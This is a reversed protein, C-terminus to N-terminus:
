FSRRLTIMWERPRGVVGTDVGYSVVNENMSTYYFKDFVNKVAASLSWKGDPTDYTLRLDTLFRGGVKNYPNNIANGFFSSLYSVDVRPTLEGMDGLDIMYSASGSSQWRSNFPAVMGPTVATLPNVQTYAFDLYGVSGTLILGDIPRAEAELEVGAVHADGANATLACTTSVSFPCYYFEMQLDKYLNYFADANVRLKRDFWDSKLGVEYTTLNEPGFAVVQDPVYPTPNVGGGKYGTSVQAYTMLEDSWRYSAGLRYDIHDGSATGSLGDLGAVLFNTTLPIGSIPTGDVNRRGFTYVKKDQTYRVGGYLDFDKVPHVEVHAFVSKSENSVPDNTLFDFLAQPIQFRGTLRDDAYYYYGGVTYDVLSGFNGTARLEETIQSHALHQTELLIALPSGDVETTVDGEADRYATISKLSLNESIRYDITGGFGYSQASDVPSSSFSGPAVQTPFFGLATYNGGTSYTAYSTYSHPGTIFRSDFPIGGFPDGAVYSRVGPNNAYTLKTAPVQSDDKTFDAAFNIELPSGEPAYRLAARVTKVDVGGETGLGCGSGHTETPLGSGPHTCAYDLRTLYGDETKSVASIRAFLDKTIAFDASARVDIRNYAGYTAEVFGGGEADPKKTVMKVAGGLSNKGALTGQPGRLVEVRDLDTLDFNAGFTTGYYVDDVYIGVGPEFAFSTNNQGIGRIFASIGNGYLSTSQSLNVNPTFNGLDAVSTQGRAALTSATVATIALPTNQLNQARFQATVVVTEIADNGQSAAAVQTQAQASSALLALSLAAASASALALVSVKLGEFGNM